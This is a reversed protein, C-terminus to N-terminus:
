WDVFVDDDDDDDDDYEELLQDIKIYHIKLFLSCVANERECQSSSLQAM